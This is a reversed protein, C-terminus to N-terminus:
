RVWQDEWVNTVLAPGLSRAPNMSAGTYFAQFMLPFMLKISSNKELAFLYVETDNKVFNPDNRNNYLIFVVVTIKPNYFPWLKQFYIYELTIM